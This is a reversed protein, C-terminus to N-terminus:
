RRRLRYRGASLAAAAVAFAVTAVLGAESAPLPFRAFPEPAREFQAALDISRHTVVVGGAFLAGALPVFWWGRGAAVVALTAVALGALVVDEWGFAQWATPSNTKAVRDLAGFIVITDDKPEFWSLWLSALAVLGGLAAVARPLPSM